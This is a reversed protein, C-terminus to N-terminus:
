KARPTDSNPKNRLVAHIADEHEELSMRQLGALYDEKTTEPLGLDRLTKNHNEWSSVIDEM